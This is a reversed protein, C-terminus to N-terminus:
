SVAVIVSGLCVALSIIILCKLWFPTVLSERLLPIM